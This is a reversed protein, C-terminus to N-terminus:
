KGEKEMIDLAQWGNMNGTIASVKDFYDGIYKEILSLQNEVALTKWWALANDRKKKEIDEVVNGVKACADILIKFEHWDYRIEDFTVSKLDEDAVEGGAKLVDQIHVCYRGNSMGCDKIGHEATFEDKMNDCVVCYENLSMSKGKIRLENWFSEWAERSVAVFKNETKDM